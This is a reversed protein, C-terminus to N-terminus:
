IQAIAVDPEPARIDEIVEDIKDRLAAILEASPAEGPRLPRPAPFRSQTPATQLRIM